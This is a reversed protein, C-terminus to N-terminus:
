AHKEVGKDFVLDFVAKIVWDIATARNEFDKEAIIKQLKQDAEDSIVVNLNKM